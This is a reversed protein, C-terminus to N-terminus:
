LASNTVLGNNGDRSSIWDLWALLLIFMAQQCLLRLYDNLKTMHKGGSTPACGLHHFSLQRQRGSISSEVLQELFYSTIDSCPNQAMAVRDDSLCNPLDHLFVQLCSTALVNSNEAIAYEMLDVAGERSTVFLHLNGTVPM